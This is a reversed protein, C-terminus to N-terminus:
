GFIHEAYTPRLEQPAEPVAFGEEPLVQLVDILEPNVSRQVRQSLDLCEDLLYRKYTSLDGRGPAIMFDDIGTSVNSIRRASINNSFHSTLNYLDPTFGQLAGTPMASLVAMTEGLLRVPDLLPAIELLDDAANILTRCAVFPPPIAGLSIM